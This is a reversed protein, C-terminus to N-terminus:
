PKTKPKGDTGLVLVYGQPPQLVLLFDYTASQDTDNEIGQFATRV